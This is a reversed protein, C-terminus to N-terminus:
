VGGKHTDATTAHVVAIALGATLVTACIGVVLNTRM